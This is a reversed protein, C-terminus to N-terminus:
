PESPEMAGGRPGEALVGGEALLARLRAVRDANAGMDSRGVRSASRVVLEGTEGVWVVEVDDKFRFIRSTAVAHIYTDTVTRLESRPMSVLAAQVTAWPLPVDNRLYLPETGEPHRDGTHVCNPTEPCPRLTGDPAGLDVPEAGGCATLLLVAAGAGALPAPRRSWPAHASVGRGGRQRPHLAM